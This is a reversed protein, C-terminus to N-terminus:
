VISINSLIISSNGSSYLTKAAPASVCKHRSGSIKFRKLCNPPESFSM